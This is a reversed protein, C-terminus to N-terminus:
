KGIKNALLGISLAEFQINNWKLLVKFNEFVLFAQGAKGDPIVLAAKLDPLKSGDLAKVGQKIWDQVDRMNKLGTVDAPVTDPVTVPVGWTQGVQWGHQKLYNAISAFVDGYSTWINKFGDGDYDVAYKLYASPMFQAQGMGGDYSSKLEEPIVKYQNLIKLANLLEKRFFEPRHDGYALTALASIFPTHGMNSGYGSEIGWMAVIFRPDVGYKKGVEDLLKRHKTYEKNARRVRSESTFRKSYEAFSLRKQPQHHEKRVTPILRKASLLYKDLTKESIGQKLADTKVGLLFLSFSPKTEEAHLAGLIFFSFLLLIVAAPYNITRM